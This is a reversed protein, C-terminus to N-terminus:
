TLFKNTNMLVFCVQSHCLMRVLQSTSSTNFPFMQALVKAVNIMTAASQKRNGVHLKRTFSQCLM